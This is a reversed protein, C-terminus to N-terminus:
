SPTSHAVAHRIEAIIDDLSQFVDENRVRPCRFGVGELYEDRIVDQEQLYDHVPGDVEIILRIEFSCFDVIFREIPVQRRFKVGNVQRRRLRQWLRHEAPTPESRMQRALPKLRQWLAPLPQIKNWSFTTMDSM